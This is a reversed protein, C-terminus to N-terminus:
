FPWDRYEQIVVKFPLIQLAFWNKYLWIGIAWSPWKEYIFDIDIKGIKM